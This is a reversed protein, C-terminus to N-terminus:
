RVMKQLDCYRTMKELNAKQHPFAITKNKKNGYFVQERPLVSVYIWVSGFLFKEEIREFPIPEVANKMVKYAGISLISNWPIEYESLPSQFRIGEPLIYIKKMFGSYFLIVFQVAIMALM